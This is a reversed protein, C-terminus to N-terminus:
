VGSNEATKQYQQIVLVSATTAFTPSILLSGVPGLEPYEIRGNLASVVEGDPRRGVLFLNCRSYNGMTSIIEGSNNVAIEEYTVSDKGAVSKRFEDLTKMDMSAEDATVNIVDADITIADTEGDVAVLHVVTLSIGPHEAMRVGYSLAERDDCGGFFLVVIHYSVNSAAVHSSGGLGRDVFIGVSCSAHELVKTNIMRYDARTTELSGDLRQHKHFPLVIIAVRKREAAACIDEHMDSPSSVSTLSRVSVKSLQQFAEFAVVVNNTESCLGKKKFSFTNRAAKHVMIIASSRESLEMLHMAYVCLVEHKQTKETGRSAEFLNIISPINRSSHFCALIRLQASPDKREITRYLYNLKRSGKAPKYVAMVLPTTIFTTFLAMLVMIAFTQDNLVQVLSITFANNSSM